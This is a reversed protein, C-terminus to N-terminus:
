QGIKQVKAGPLVLYSTGHEDAMEIGKYGLGGAIKGRVKQAAWDAHAMDEEGFIDLIRDEDIGSGYLGKDEVIAEYLDDIEDEKAGPLEKKLIGSVKDYDQEYGLSQQTLIDKERLKMEHLKGGHSLAAEREPSAFIGGYLGEDRIEDVDGGHYLSIMDEDSAKAAQKIDGAGELAKASKRSTSLAPVYPILGAATLGANLLTRSEPDNMYMDADAVLGAIDGVVPIPATAMAAKDFPSLGGWAKSAFDKLESYKQDLKQKVFEIAEEDEYVEPEDKGKITIKFYPM